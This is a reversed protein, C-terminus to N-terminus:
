ICATTMYSSIGVVDGLHNMALTFGFIHSNANHHDIFKKNSLWIMHRELEDLSTAYTKVHKLKWNSWEEAHKFLAAETRGGGTLSAAILLMLLFGTRLPISLSDM